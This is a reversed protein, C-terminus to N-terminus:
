LVGCQIIFFSLCASLICLPCWIVVVKIRCECKARNINKMYRNMEDMKQIVTLIKNYIGKNKRVSFIFGRLYFEIQARVWTM